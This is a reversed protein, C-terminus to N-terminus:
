RKECLVDPFMKVFRNYDEHSIYCSHECWVDDYIQENARTNKMLWTYAEGGINCKIKVYLKDTINKEIQERLEEIGEDTLTSIKVHDLNMGDIYKKDEDSILDIKNWVYVMPKDLVKLIKLWAMVENLQYPRISSDIVFLILSARTINELTSRFAQILFPPLYTVFGVTDSLIIKQHNKLTCQRLFPDLTEFPKSSVKADDGTLKNFLSTKGANSYGVLAVIKDKRGANRMESDEALKALKKKVDLVADDIMRRDLEFQTEGPGGVTNYKGGQRELHSWQGILQTRNHLLTALQVQLKAEVTHARHKFIDIIIDIRSLVRTQCLARLVRYQLGTLTNNYVLICQDDETMFIRKSRYKCEACESDIVEATTNINVDNKCANNATDCNEMANDANCSMEMCATDAFVDKEDADFQADYERDRCKQCKILDEHIRQHEKAIFDSVMKLHGKGPFKKDRAKFSFTQLINYGLDILLAKIEEIPPTRYGQFDVLCVNKQKIITM